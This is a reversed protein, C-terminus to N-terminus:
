QNIDNIIEELEKIRKKMKHQLLIEIPIAIALILLTLALFEYTGGNSLDHAIMIALPIGIIYDARRYISNLRRYEKIKILYEKMVKSHLNEVDLIKHLKKNVIYEAIVLINAFIITAWSFFDGSYLKSGIAIFDFIILSIWDLYVVQKQASNVRRASRDIATKVFKDNIIEQRNLEESLLNYKSRLENLEDINNNM